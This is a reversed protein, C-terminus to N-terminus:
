KADQTVILIGEKNIMYSIASKIQTSLKTTEDLDGTHEGDLIMQQIVKNIIVSQQINDLGDYESQKIVTVVKHAIKTYDEFSIKVKGPQSAAAQSQAAPQAQAM